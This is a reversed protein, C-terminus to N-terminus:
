SSAIKRDWREVFLVNEVVPVPARGLRDGRGKGSRVIIASGGDCRGRPRGENGGQEPQDGQEGGGGSRGEGLRACGDLRRDLSAVQPDAERRPGVLVRELGPGRGDEARLAVADGVGM